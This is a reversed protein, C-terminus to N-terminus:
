TVLRPGGLRSPIHILQENVSDVGLSLEQLTIAGLLADTGPEGFVVWTPTADGNVRLQISKVGLTIKRGDALEFERDSTPTHGLAELTPRPIWTYSAGTDVCASITEFRSGEEDAVAIQVSFVGL